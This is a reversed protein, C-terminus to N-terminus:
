KPAIERQVSYRKRKPLWFFFSATEMLALVAEMEIQSKNLNPM